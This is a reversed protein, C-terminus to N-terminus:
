LATLILILYADSSSIIHYSHIGEECFMQQITGEAAFRGQKEEALSEEIQNRLRIQEDLQSRHLSLMTALQDDLRKVRNNAVQAATDSEQKQEDLQLNIMTLKMNQDNLENVTLQFKDVESHLRALESKQEELDQQLQAHVGPAIGGAFGASGNSPTIDGGPSQAVLNAASQRDRLRQETKKSRELEGQVKALAAQSATVEATLSTVKEHLAATAEIRVKADTTDQMMLLDDERRKEARQREEAWIAAAKKMDDNLSAIAEDREKLRSRADALAVEHDHLRALTTSRDAAQERLSSFEAQLRTVEARERAITDALVSQCSDHIHLLEEVRQRQARESEDRMTQLKDEMSKLSDELRKITRDGEERIAEARYQGRKADDLSIRLSAVTAEDGNMAVLPAKVTDQLAAIRDLHGRISDRLEKNESQLRAWEERIVKLDGSKRKLENRLSEAEAKCPEHLTVMEAQRDVRMQEITRQLEAELRQLSTHHEENAAASNGNNAAAAAAAAAVARTWRTSGGITGATAPSAAGNTTTDLHEEDEALHAKLQKIEEAQRAEKEEALRLAVQLARSADVERQLSTLKEQATKNAAEMKAYEDKWSHLEDTKRRVEARLGVTEEHEVAEHKKHIVEHERIEVKHREFEDHERVLQLEAELRLKREEELAAEM